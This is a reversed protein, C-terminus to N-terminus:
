RPLWRASAAAARRAGRSLRDPRAEVTMLRKAVGEITERGYEFSPNGASLVAVGFARDHRRLTAVQNVRWGDSAPYWGGKFHVEWGKPVVDAVGWRQDDIVKALVGLAFAEHRKPVYREIRGLFTAQDGATIGSGGWFPSSVFHHMGAAAAVENLGEEGVTAFIADAAMNDSQQIMSELLGRESDTLERDSVDATRLYAVLLMAKVASASYYVRFRHDGLLRGCEDLIAFAVSGFRQQAWDATGRVQKRDPCHRPIKKGGRRSDITVGDGPGFAYMGTIPAVVAVPPAEDPGSSQAALM